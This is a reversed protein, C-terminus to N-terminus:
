GRLGSQVLLTDNQLDLVTLDGPLAPAVTIEGGTGPARFTNQFFSEGGLASRALSKLLGGTAQTQIAVDQSMSVMSGSEVRVEEQPALRIVALSYAPRYLIEVDM